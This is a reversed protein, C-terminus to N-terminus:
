FVYRPEPLFELDNSQGVLSFMPNRKKRMIQRRTEHRLIKRRQQYTNPAAKLTGLVPASSPNEQGSPVATDYPQVEISQLNWLRSALQDLLSCLSGLIMPDSQALRVLNTAKEAVFQYTLKEHRTAGNGALKSLTAEKDLDVNGLNDTAVEQPFCPGDDESLGGGVGITTHLEAQPIQQNISLITSNFTRCNLWRTSYKALDL